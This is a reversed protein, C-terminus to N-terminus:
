LGLREIMDEVTTVKALEIVTEIECCAEAIKSLIELHVDGKGAIGIVLYVINGNGFDVGNPYQNICVGSNLINEKSSETGHPIAVHNGIFTTVIRERELMADIYDETVFGGDVLIQGAFKIADEKSVSPLGLKVLDNTVKM